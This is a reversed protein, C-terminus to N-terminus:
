VGLCPWCTWIGEDSEYLGDGSDMPLRCRDCRFPQRNELEYPRFIRETYLATIEPDPPTVFKGCNTCWKGGNHDITESNNCRRCKILGELIERPLQAIKEVRTCKNGVINLHKILPDFGKDASLVFCEAGQDLTFIEGLKFAIQFDLANKGQGNIKQYDIVAVKNKESIKKKIRQENDFHGIFIIVKLDDDFTSLNVSPRNEFDVLLFKRIKKAM